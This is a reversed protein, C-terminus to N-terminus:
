EDEMVDVVAEGGAKAAAARIVSRVCSITKGGRGLLKGMDSKAVKVDYYLKGQKEREMVEVAEKNDVLSAVLYELLEKMQHEGIPRREAPRSDRDRGGPRPRRRRRDM